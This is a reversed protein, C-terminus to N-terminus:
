RVSVEQVDVSLRRCLEELRVKEAYPIRSAAFVVLAVNEASLVREAERLPGLVTYGHLSRGIKDPSDDLFGVIRYQAKEDAEILRTAADGLKGAGVVLVGRRDTKDLGRFVEKLSHLAIRAFVIGTLTFVADIVMVARSYDLFRTFLVLGTVFVTSSLLVAKLIALFDHISFAGPVTRYLGVAFFCLLRSGILFPFSRLILELNLPSLVGEYRLLYASL